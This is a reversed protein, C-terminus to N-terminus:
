QELRRKKVLSLEAKDRIEDFSYEKILQGNEYVTVLLDQSLFTVISCNGKLPQLLDHLQLQFVGGDMWGDRWRDMWGDM